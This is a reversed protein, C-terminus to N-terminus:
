ESQWPGFYYFVFIMPLVAIFFIYFSIEPFFVSAASAPITWVCQLLLYAKSPASHDNTKVVLKQYAHLAHRGSLVNERRWLRVFLTITTETLFLSLLILWTWLSIQDKVISTTMFIVFLSGLFLSGSDGMFIKAPAWNFKLFGLSVSALIWLIFALPIEGALYFYAGSVISILFTNSILLGDAGDIFNITNIVWIFFLSYAFVIIQPLPYTLHSYYLHLDFTYIIFIVFLIQALIRLLVNLSFLDDFFGILAMLGAGFFLTFLYSAPTINQYYFVLVMLLFSFAIAIGGSTPVIKNPVNLNNEKSFFNYKSAIKLHLKLFIISVFFSTLLISLNFLLSSM